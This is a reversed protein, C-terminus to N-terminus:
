GEVSNHCGKKPGRQARRRAHQIEGGSEDEGGREAGGGLLSDDTAGRAVLNFTVPRWEEVARANRAALAEAEERGRPQQRESVEGALSPFATEMETSNGRGLFLLEFRALGALSAERALWLPFPSLLSDAALNGTEEEEEKKAAPQVKGV